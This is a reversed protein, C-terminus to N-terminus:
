GEAEGDPIPEVEDFNINAADLSQGLKDITGDPDKRYDRRLKAYQERVQSTNLEQKQWLAIANDRLFVPMKDKIFAKGVAEWDPESGDSEPEIIEGTAADVLVPRADPITGTETEDLWGLGVISLTVRRKAKTEAKMIANALADGRLGALSVAGVSEDTRGDPLTARATVVYLDEIRERATISVSVRHVKRLQDTADRKAYLTLKGNLTIYDFPRTLPNLGLSRCTETYYRVRDAPSLKGLDGAVLVREMIAAQDDRTALAKEETM